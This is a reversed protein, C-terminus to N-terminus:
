QDETNISFKNRRLGSTIGAYPVSVTQQYRFYEDFCVVKRSGGGAAVMIRNGDWAMDNGHLILGDFTIRAKEKMTYKDFRYVVVHKNDAIGCLYIFRDTIVFGEGMPYQADSFSVVKRFRKGEAAQYWESFKGANNLRWIRSVKGGENALYEQMIVDNMLSLVTLRGPHPVPLGIMSKAAPTSPVYYNGPTLLEDIITGDTLRIADNRDLEFEIM